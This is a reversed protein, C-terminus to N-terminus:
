FLFRIIKNVPFIFVTGPQINGETFEHRTGAINGCQDANPADVGCYKCFRPM